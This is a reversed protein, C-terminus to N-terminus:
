PFVMSPTITPIEIKSVSLTDATIPDTTGKIMLLNFKSGAIAEPGKMVVNFSIIPNSIYKEM